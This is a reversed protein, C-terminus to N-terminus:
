NTPDAKIHGTTYIVGEINCIKAEWGDAVTSPFHTITIVKCFVDGLMFCNKEFEVGMPSILDIIHNNVELEENVVKKAM